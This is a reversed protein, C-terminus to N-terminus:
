ENTTEEIVDTEEISSDETNMNKLLEMFEIQQKIDSATLGEYEAETATFVVYKGDVSVKAKTEDDEYNQKLYEAADKAAASDAYEYYAKLGTIDDGSYTYVLHTKIPNYNSDDMSVDSSDLTLVYKTNDSVFYSDDISSNRTILIVAVAIIAVVVVVACIGIILKKNIPKKAKEAM